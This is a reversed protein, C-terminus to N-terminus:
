CQLRACFRLALLILVSSHLYAKSPGEIEWDGTGNQHPLWTYEEDDKAQGLSLRGMQRVNERAESYLALLVPQMDDEEVQGDPSAGALTM